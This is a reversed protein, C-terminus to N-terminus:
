PSAAFVGVVAFIATVGLTIRLGILLNSAAWKAGALAEVSMWSLALAVFIPILTAKALKKFKDGRKTDYSSAKSFLFGSFVLLLGALGISSQLVTLIINQDPM